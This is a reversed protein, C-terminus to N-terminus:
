PTLGSVASSGSGRASTQRLDASFDRVFSFLFGQMASRERSVRPFMGAAYGRALFPAVLAPKRSLVHIPVGYGGSSRTVGGPPQHDGVIVVLTDNHLESALYSRLVRLDYVVADLYADSARDLAAWEVSHRRVPLSAFVSGDGIRSWDALVSPEALWPAHSTVLAFEIFRPKDRRVLERRHVFDIVFQDPMRAWGLAPGRYDFDAALYKRDFDLYDNPGLPRETAPQALVTVYGAARFFDAITLPRRACLAEYEIQDAVRIGTDLAAHAFWSRNGFTPSDLVSSAVTYGSQGLEADFADFEARVRPAYAADELLTEGYSEVVFVLVDAGELKALNTSMAAFRARTDAVVREERERAHSAYATARAESVLRRASSEAMPRVSAFAGARPVLSLAAFSVAVVGFLHRSPRELLCREAVRLAFHTLWAVLAAGAVLAVGFLVLSATSTATRLLRPLEPLLSADVYLNFSRRFFHNSVADCSRFFRVLLLLAAAAALLARPARRGSRGLLALAGFLVVTDICPLYWLRTDPEPYRLNAVVNLWTWSAVLGM